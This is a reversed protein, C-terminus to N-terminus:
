RFMHEGVLLLPRLLTGDFAAFIVDLAKSALVVLVAVSQRVVLAGYGARKARARPGGVLLREVSCIDELSV